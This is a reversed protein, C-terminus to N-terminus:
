QDIKLSQIHSKSVKTGMSFKFTLPKKWIESAAVPEPARTLLNWFVEGQKLFNPKVNKKSM